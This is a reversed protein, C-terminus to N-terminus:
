TTANAAKNEEFFSCFREKGFLNFIVNKIARITYFNALNADDLRCFCQQNKCNPIRRFKLITGEPALNPRVGRSFDRVSCFLCPRRCMNRRYIKTTFCMFFRAFVILCFMITSSTYISLMHVWQLYRLILYNPSPFAFM